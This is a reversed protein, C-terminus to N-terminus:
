KRRRALFLSGLGLLAMTAPEPVFSANDFMMAKNVAAASIMVRATVASDPAVVGTLSMNTWATSITSIDESTTSIINSSAGLWEIQMAVSGALDGPDRRADISYDYSTGATVAVDQYFAGTGGNNWWYIAMGYTGTEAAWTESGVTAAPFPPAAVWPLAIDGSFAAGEFGPDGLLNAQATGCLLVLGLSVCLVVCM